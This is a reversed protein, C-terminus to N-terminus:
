MELGLKQQAAIACGRGEQLIVDIKMGKFDNAAPDITESYLPFYRTRGEEDKTMKSGSLTASLVGDMSKFAVGVNMKATITKDGDKSKEEYEPLVGRITFDPYKQATIKEADLGDLQAKVGSLAPAYRSMVGNANGIGLCSQIESQALAKQEDNPGTSCAATALAASLALNSRRM